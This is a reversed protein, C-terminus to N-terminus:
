MRRPWRPTDMLVRLWLAIGGMLCMAADTTGYVHPLLATLPREYDRRATQRIHDHAPHLATRWQTRVRYPEGAKGKALERGEVDAAM